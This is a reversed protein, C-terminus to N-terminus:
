EGEHWPGHFIVGTKKHLLGHAGFCGRQLQIVRSPWADSNLLEVYALASAFGAMPVGASIAASTQSRLAPLGTEIVKPFKGACFVNQYGPDDRCGKILSIVLEDLSSSLVKPDVLQTFHQRIEPNQDWAKIEFGHDVLNQALANGMPGLGVLGIAHFRGTVM